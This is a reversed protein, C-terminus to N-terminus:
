AVSKASALGSGMPNASAGGKTADLPWVSIGQSVFVNEEASLQKRRSLVGWQRLPMESRPGM